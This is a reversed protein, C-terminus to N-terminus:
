FGISVALAIALAGLALLLGFVPLAFRIWRDYPVGAATTKATM